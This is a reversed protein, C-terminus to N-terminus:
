SHGALYAAAAFRNSFVSALVPDGSYRSMGSSDDWCAFFHGHKTALLFTLLRIHSGQLDREVGVHGFQKGSRECRNLRPSGSDAWTPPNEVGCRARWDQVSGHDAWVNRIHPIRARVGLVWPPVALARLLDMLSDPDM